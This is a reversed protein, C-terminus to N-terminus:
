KKGTPLPVDLLDSRIKDELNLWIIDQTNTVGLVYKRAPGIARVLTELYSREKYVSPSAEYAALQNTYQVAQAQATTVKAYSDSWATLVTNSAEAHAQPIKEAWYAQASLINSQKEQFAGIVAEYDPAVKVPPHIGQLGVFMVEVGLENEDANKQIEERLKKAAALRGPGMIDEIDVNVLYRSLARNALLELLEDSASHKYVYSHLDKIRYQVPINVSVLNVPVVQEGGAASSSDLYGQERSAVLMNYEEKFHTRTWLLTKEKDAEPDPVFGLYFTHVERSRYRHVVDVPWPWKLHLGPELIERKVVPRGWRELLGQEPAEIVVVCTSLLLVGLQLLILWALAKEAFRYFWTESVKFGFQYDLAQAATTILGGPQGLLGILRSEFLLHAAQGKIRPRYIELILTILTELAVLGLVVCLVRAVIVDVRPYSFYGVAETVAMLLTMLSGLLLYSAGPRLLRHNEWRAIGAVYKGRIFFVMSFLAALALAITARGANLAPARDFWKWLFYVALGQLICLVIAFGPIFWKEFQERSRRAPYTDAEQSFLASASASKKLEEYELLELKERAELRMQFASVAAVLVGMALFVVGMQGTASSAYLALMQTAGGVILLLFLNGV